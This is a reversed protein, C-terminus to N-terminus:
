LVLQKMKTYNDMTIIAVKHDVEMVFKIVIELLEIAKATLGFSSRTASKFLLSRKVCVFVCVFLSSDVNNNKM